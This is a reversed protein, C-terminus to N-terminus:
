RASIPAVPVITRPNLVLALEESVRDDNPLLGALVAEYHALPRPSM